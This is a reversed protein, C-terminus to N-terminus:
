AVTSLVIKQLRLKEMFLFATTKLFSTAQHRQHVTSPTQCTTSSNFLIVPVLLTKSLIAYKCQNSIQKLPILSITMSFLGATLRTAEKMESNTIGWTNNFVISEITTHWQETEPDNFSLIKNKNFLFNVKHKLMDANHFNNSTQASLATIYKLFDATKGLEVSINNNKINNTISFNSDINRM